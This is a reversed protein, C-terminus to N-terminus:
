ISSPFSPPSGPIMHDTPLEEWFAICYEASVATLLEAEPLVRKQILLDVMGIGDERAQRRVDALVDAPVGLAELRVALGAAPYGPAAAASLAPPADAAEPTKAQYEQKPM